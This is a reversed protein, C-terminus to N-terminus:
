SREVFRTFHKRGRGTFYDVWYEVRSNITVPIDFQTNKLKVGQVYIGDSDVRNQASPKEVQIRIGTSKSSNIDQTLVDGLTKPADKPSGGSRVTACGSVLAVWTVAVLGLTSFRLMRAPASSISPTSQMIPNLRIEM